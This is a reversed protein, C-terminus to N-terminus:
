ESYDKQFVQCSKFIVKNYADAYIRLAKRHSMDEGPEVTDTVGKLIRIGCQKEIWQASYKAQDIGPLSILKKVFGLVRFDLNKAALKADKQATEISLDEPQQNSQQQIKTSNSSQACGSSLSVLLALTLLGLLHGFSGGGSDSSPPPTPTPTPTIPTATVSITLTATSTSFSPDEINYTLTETGSFGTAPTYSIQNNVIAAQGTGSYNIQTITLTDQDPDIDNNVVDINVASADQNITATDAVATPADNVPTIQIVMPFVNSDANGDNVSVNVTLTGNFDPEPTIANNVVSYNSSPEIKLTFNDPYNTDPDDVTLDSFLILVSSDETSSKSQQGTILPAVPDAGPLLVFQGPNVAYFVNDSCKIMLRASNSNTSPATVQQEGDNPIGTLLTTEFSNNGDADLLIDVNPCSIPPLESDATNWQVNQLQGGSWRVPAANTSTQPQIISFAGTTKEINIEAQMTNVGGNGDRVVLEFTLQRTETPLVEGDSDTDNLVDSLRPFYRTSNLNPPYSRFLPNFGNDTEREQRTATAGDFSGPNIQDWAYTLTDGDDDSVEVNLVFPTSAPITHQIPATTITPVDNGSFQPTGCSREALFSQIQEISFAHFYGDNDQQLNQEGCLGAYSMITSGSGPEVASNRSRQTDDCNNNDLANFSHAAGLQHGFEHIVLQIYFSEGSPRSSGSQARAKVTERCASRLTALGGSDTNLLHGIDYNESGILDDITQQNTDIDDGADTNTFPDTNANTFILRDNNDILEFQIALEVLFIQNVRNVLRVIEAMTSAEGGNANTYEGSASVALRYTRIQEGVSRQAVLDISKAAASEAFKGSNIQDSILYDSGSLTTSQQPIEDKAYYSIYETKDSNKNTSLMVWQGEYRFMGSFGDPSFDFRGSNNINNIQEGHFSRLQPFKAALGDAMVKIPELKFLQLSGDPMPIHLEIQNLSASLIKNITNRNVNWRAGRTALQSLYEDEFQSTFSKGQASKPHDQSDKFWPLQSDQGNAYVTSCFVAIFLMSLLNMLKIKKFAFGM